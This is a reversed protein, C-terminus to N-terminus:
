GNNLFSLKIISPLINKLPPFSSGLLFIWKITGRPFNGYGIDVIEQEVNTLWSNLTAEVENRNIGWPMEPTTYNKTKKWGEASMTKRSLWRPIIDFM